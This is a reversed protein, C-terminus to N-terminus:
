YLRFNIELTVAVPVPMLGGKFAPKFRYKRAAVVAKEDLSPDLKRIVRVNQPMGQSDVILTVLCIGSIKRRRAEESFQAEPSLIPVPASIGGGVRFLGISLNGFSTIGTFIAESASQTGQKLTQIPPAALSYSVVKNGDVKKSEECVHFETELVAWTAVPQGELVAPKFRNAFGMRMAVRDLETGTAQKFYLNRPEGGADVIFNINTTLVSRNKKSCSAGSPEPSAAQLLEPATMGADVNYVKVRDPGNDAALAVAAALVLLIAAEHKMGHEGAVGGSQIV